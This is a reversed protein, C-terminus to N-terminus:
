QNVAPQIAPRPLSALVAKRGDGRSWRLGSLFHDGLVRLVNEGFVEVHHGPAALPASLHMDHAGPRDPVRPLTVTGPRM